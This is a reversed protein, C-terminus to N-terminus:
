AYKQARESRRPKRANVTPKLPARLYTRLANASTNKNVANQNVFGHRRVLSPWVWTNTHMGGRSDPM